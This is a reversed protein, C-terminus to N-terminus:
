ESESESSCMKWERGLKEDFKFSDLFVDFVILPRGGGKRHRRWQFSEADINPVLPSSLLSLPIILRCFSIIFKNIFIIGTFFIIFRIV